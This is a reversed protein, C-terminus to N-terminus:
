RATRELPGTTRGDERPGPTTLDADPHTIKRMAGAMALALLAVAVFYQSWSHVQFWPGVLPLEHTALFRVSALVLLFWGLSFLFSGIVGFGVRRKLNQLPGVTEQRAYGKLLEWLDRVTDQFSNQTQAVPTRM